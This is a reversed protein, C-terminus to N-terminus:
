YRSKKWVFWIGILGLTFIDFGTFGTVGAPTGNGIIFEGKMGQEFHGSYGCYYIITTDMDPTTWVVSWETSGNLDLTNSPIGVLLDDPENLNEMSVDQDLDILLNHLFTKNSLHFTIVYTTNKELYINVKDFAKVDGHLGPDTSIIITEPNNQGNVKSYVLFFVIILLLLSNFFLLRYGSLM